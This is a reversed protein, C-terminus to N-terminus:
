EHTGGFALTWILAVGALVLGGYIIKEMVAKNESDQSGANLSGAQGLYSSKAPVWRIGQNM